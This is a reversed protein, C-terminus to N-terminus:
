AARRPAPVEPETAGGAGTWLAEAAPAPLVGAEYRSTVRRGLAIIVWTEGTLGLVVVSLWFM